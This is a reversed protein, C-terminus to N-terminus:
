GHSHGREDLCPFYHDSAVSFDFGAQEAHVLDDMLARPGSQEGTM